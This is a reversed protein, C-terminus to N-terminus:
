QLWYAMKAYMKDTWNGGCHTSCSNDTIGESKAKIASNAPIQDYLAQGAYNGENNGKCTISFVPNHFKSIQDAGTAACAALVGKCYPISNYYAINTLLMFSAYSYGGVVSRNKDIGYKASIASICKDYDEGIMKASGNWDSTGPTKRYQVIAAAYGNEAAKECIASEAAGDLNGPTPNNEDNGSGMVLIGKFTTLKINTFIKYTVGNGTETVQKIEGSIVEDPENKDKKGCALLLLMCSFLIHKFKM